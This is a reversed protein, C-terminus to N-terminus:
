CAMRIDKIILQIAKNKAYNNYSMTFIIDFMNNESLMNEYDKMDYGIGDFIIGDKVFYFKAHSSERGVFSVEQYKEVAKMCFVPEKNGNGYPEFKKLIEM